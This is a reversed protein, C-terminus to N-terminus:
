FRFQMVLRRLEASLRALENASIELEMAESKTSGATVALGSVNTAIAASASATEAIDGSILDTTRSEREVATAISNQHANIQDIVASILRIDDRASESDSQIQQIVKRVEETAGATELALKKVEVAVVAFGRGAEGARAAEVTANLALLNTQEAIHNISQIVYGIGESRESLNLITRNAIAAQNVAGGAVLVADGSSKAIARLCSAMQVSAGAVNQVSSSVKIGAESVESAKMATEDAEQSLSQSLNSLAVASEALESARNDIGKIATSFSAVVRNLAASLRGFEDESKVILRQTLDGSAVKELAGVAVEMPKGIRRGIVWASLGVIVGAAIGMTASFNRLSEAEQVAEVEFQRVLVGWGNGGFHQLGRCVAFGNLQMQGVRGNIEDTFGDRGALLERAGLLGEEVLNTSLVNRRDADELVTGGRSMVNVQWTRNHTRGVAKTADVLPHIVKDWSVFNCWVRIVKGMEDRVPAAFPIVVDEKGTVSYVSGSRGVDGYYCENKHTSGDVCKRFWLETAVSRGLLRSYDVYDGDSNISNTGIIRGDGDALVMLDAVPAERIVRNAIEGIGRGEKFSDPHSAVMLMDRYCEYMRADIGTALNGAAVQLVIQAARLLEARAKRFSLAGSVAVPLMGMLLFMLFLQGGFSRVSLHKGIRM